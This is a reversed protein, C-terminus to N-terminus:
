TGVAMLDDETLLELEIWGEVPLADVPLRNKWLSFRLRLRTTVNPSSQPGRVEQLDLPTALLWDLPLRFEFNRGLAVRATNGAGSARSAAERSGQTVKWSVIKREEVKVDVRLDRRPEAGQNAWAEVNVVVEFADEPVNGLFDLRGYVYHEDIGAYVDDLFYQKGHMSGSRQDASYRAAGMWEFYRVMDGTVRPHIYASQSTFAPRAVGATIPQALTIRRRGAWRRTLM